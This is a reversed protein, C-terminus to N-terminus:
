KRLMYRLIGDILSTAWTRSQGPEYVKARFNMTSFLSELPEPRPPADPRDVVYRQRKPETITLDEVDTRGALQNWLHSFNLQQPVKACVPIEGVTVHRDWMEDRREFWGRLIDFFRPEQVKFFHTQRMADLIDQGAPPFFFLYYWDYNNAGFDINVNACWIMVVDARNENLQFDRLSM